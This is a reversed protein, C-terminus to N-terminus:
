PGARSKGMGQRDLCRFCTFLLSMLMSLASLINFAASAGLVGAYKMPILGCDKFQVKWEFHDSLDKGDDNWECCVCTHPTSIQSSPIDCADSAIDGTYRSSHIDCCFSHNYANSFSYCHNAEHAVQAYHGDIIGGIAMVLVAISGVVIFAVRYCNNEYHKQIFLIGIVFAPLSFLIPYWAGPHPDSSLAFAGSGCGLALIAFLMYVALGVLVVVANNDKLM